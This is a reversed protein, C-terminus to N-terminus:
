DDGPKGRHPDVVADGVLWDLYNRIVGSEPSAAPTKEFRELEKFSREKVADPMGAAEIKRRYESLDDGHDGDMGREGLEQQIAKLQERLIFERQNDGMEKEVRGRINKQIELIEYEKHLVESLKELREQVPATELLAQKQDVRLSLYPIITDALQDPESINLVNVLAEPPINKGETVLREFQQTATRALAEMELRNVPAVPTIAEVQVLFYPDSQVFGTLRVRRSGELMVRVTNDPMKLLQMVEAAIGVDYIDEPDPEETAVQKQAALLIFRSSTEMAAELAKVSRERGVFLPFIMHPFYVNDRIPVLPLADPLTAEELSLGLDASLGLQKAQEDAIPDMDGALLGQRLQEEIEEPTLDLELLGGPPPPVPKSKPARPM